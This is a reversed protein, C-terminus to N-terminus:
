QQPIMLLLLKPKLLVKIELAQVLVQEFWAPWLGCGVCIFHNYIELESLMQHGGSFTNCKLNVFFCSLTSINVGHEIVETTDPWVPLTSKILCEEISFLIVNDPASLLQRLRRRSVAETM